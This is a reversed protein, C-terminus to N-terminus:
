VPGPLKWPSPTLHGPGTWLSLLIAKQQEARLHQLRWIQGQLSRRGSHDKWFGEQNNEQLCFRMVNKLLRSNIIAEIFKFSVNLLTLPRHSSIEWSPRDGGKALLHVEGGRWQDPIVGTTLTHNDTELFLQKARLPAAKLLESTVEDLGPAKMPKITRLVEHLESWGIKGKLPTYDPGECRNPHEELYSRPFPPPAFPLLTTKM